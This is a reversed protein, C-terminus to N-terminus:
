SRALLGTPILMIDTGFPSIQGTTSTGFFGFQCQFFSIEENQGKTVWLGTGLSNGLETTTAPVDCDLGDDIYQAKQGHSHLLFAVLGWYRDTQWLFFRASRRGTGRGFLEVLGGGAEEREGDDVAALRVMDAVSSVGEVTEGADVVVKTHLHSHGGTTAGAAPGRGNM